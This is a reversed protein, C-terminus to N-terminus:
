INLQYNKNINTHKRLEALLEDKLEKVLIEYEKILRVKNDPQKKLIQLMRFAEEYNECVEKFNSDVNRYM